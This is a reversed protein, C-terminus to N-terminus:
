ENGGDVIIIQAAQLTSNATYLFNTIHKKLRDPMHAETKGARARGRAIEVARKKNFSGSEREIAFASWGIVTVDTFTQTEADHWTQKEAYFCGIRNGQEDRPYRIVYNNMKIDETLTSLYFV